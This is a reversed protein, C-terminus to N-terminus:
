AHNPDEKRYYKAQVEYMNAYKGKQNMLEDHTGMEAIEGNEFFLIRDCFKTSSLRHSIFISTKGQSLQSYKQYLENEAIPDLAATPEDLIVVSSEKYLTRALMLKQMEGGSLNVGEPDLDRTVSTKERNPLKQISEWLGAMMLKEKLKSANQDQVLCGTVNDAISAAFAFVEQFVVAFESLYSTEEITAIDIGDLLIRGETPRYLGLLLKIVTSKGAGNIGVLALKEGSRITVNLDHICDKEAEPYKFSIHEMTLTHPKMPNTVKEVGNRKEEGYSLFYRYHGVITNNRTLEKVNEFLGMIWGNFGAVIGINLIFREITMDGQYMLYILYGYVIGDRLFALIKELNDFLLYYNASKNQLKLVKKRLTNFEELFWAQMRYIRIDKAGKQDLTIQYMYQLSTYEGSLEEQVLYDKKGTVRSAFVALFTFALLMLIIMPSTAGIVAVYALMGLLNVSIEPLQKLFMEIGTENGEYVARRAKEFQRQGEPSECLYFPIELSKKMLKTGQRDRFLFLIQEYMRVLYTDVMQLLLIGAIFTLLKIIGTELNEGETM